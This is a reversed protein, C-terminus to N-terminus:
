REDGAKTSYSSKYFGAMKNSLRGRFSFGFVYRQNKNLKNETELLIQEHKENEVMRTVPIENNEEDRVAYKSFELKKAHLVIYKTASVCRVEITARGTFNFTKLDPHMYLKYNLPIIDKPLRIDDYPFTEESDDSGGENETIWSLARKFVEQEKEAGYYFTSFMIITVAGVAIILTLCIACLRQSCMSRNEQYRVHAKSRSKTDKDRQSKESGDRSALREAPLGSYGHGRMAQCSTGSLCISNVQYSEKISFTQISREVPRTQEFSSCNWSQKPSKRSYFSLSFVILSSNSFDNFRLAKQLHKAPTRFTNTLGISAM